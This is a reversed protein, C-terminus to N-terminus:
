RFLKERTLREILIQLAEVGDTIVLTDNNFFSYLLATSPSTELIRVDKNKVTLDNFAPTQTTNTLFPAINFLPGIDEPMKAEWTLMGAFTKEFSSFKLILFHNDGLSGLMFNPDLARALNGPAQSHLIDLLAQTELLPAESGAGKRLIIHKLDGATENLALENFNTILSERTLGSVDLTVESTPTIFRNSPIAIAPPTTKRVYEGYTYLGGLISLALFLLSGGFLLLNKKMRVARAMDAVTAPDLRKKASETQQISVLSEQQRGLAEAVDGQFTRIQKLSPNNQPAPPNNEPPM